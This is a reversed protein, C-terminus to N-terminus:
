VAVHIVYCMYLLRGVFVDICCRLEVLMYVRLPACCLTYLLM